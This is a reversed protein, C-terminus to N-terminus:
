DSQWCTASSGRCARSPPATRQLINDSIGFGFAGGILHEGAAAGVCPEYHVLQVRDATERDDDSVLALALKAVNTPRAMRERLEDPDSWTGDCCVGVNRAM